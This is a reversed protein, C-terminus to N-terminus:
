TPRNRQKLKPALATHQSCPVASNHAVAIM